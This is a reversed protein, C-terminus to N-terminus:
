KSGEVFSTIEETLNELVTLLEKTKRPSIKISVLSKGEPYEVYVYPLNQLKKIQEQLDEQQKLLRDKYAVLEATRQEISHIEKELKRAENLVQLMKQKQQALNAELMTFKERAKKMTESYYTDVHEELGSVNVNEFGGHQDYCIVRVEDFALYPNVDFVVWLYKRYNKVNAYSKVKKIMPVVQVEHLEENTIVDPTRGGFNSPKSSWDYHTIQGKVKESLWKLALDHLTM